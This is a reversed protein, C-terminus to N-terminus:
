LIGLLPFDEKLISKPAVNLHKQLVEAYLRRFDIEFRLDGQALSALDPAANYFGAKKLNKGILWVNNAAGHDTGNSANQQVRRGFESFTLLLVRGFHGSQQLDEVFAQVAAAYEQLLREHRQGQGVHTDFGTMSTYYVATDAGSQILQAVSHLKKALAGAPYEARRAKIKSQEYLYAASSRTEALTQYLYSVPHEHAHQHTHTPLLPSQTLQYFRQPDQLALAKSKEGKLAFSLTDDLEIAGHAKCGKECSLDLYRGLWGSQWHEQAPSASHWIDMSRFHSRDPEPYGVSNLISLFGQEYLKQLPALAPHLGQGQALPLVKNPAIALRPRAQYYLNNEYPIITNLGDNGGSLQLVVLINGEGLTGSHEFAKLLQPMLLGGLTAVASQQLFTRRKM